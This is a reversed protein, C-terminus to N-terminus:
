ETLLSVNLKHKSNTHLQSLETESDTFNRQFSLSGRLQAQESVKKANLDTQHLQCVILHTSFLPLHPRRLMLADRPLQFSEFLLCVVTRRM